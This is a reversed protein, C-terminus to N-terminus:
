EQYERALQVKVSKEYDLEMNNIDKYSPQLNRSYGYSIKSSQQSEPNERSTVKSNHNLM